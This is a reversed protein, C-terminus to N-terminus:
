FVYISLGCIDINTYSILQIRKYKDRFSTTVKKTLLILWANGAKVTHEKRKSFLIFRERCGAGHGRHSM